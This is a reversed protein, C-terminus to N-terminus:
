CVPLCVCVCVDLDGNSIDPSMFAPRSASADALTRTTVFQLCYRAHTHMNYIMGSEQQVDPVIAPSIPTSELGGLTHANHHSHHIICVLLNCSCKGNNSWSTPRPINSRGREYPQSACRITGLYNPIAVVKPTGDYATSVPNWRTVMGYKTAENKSLLVASRGMGKPHALAYDPHWHVASFRLRPPADEPLGLCRRQALALQRKKARRFKDRNGRAQHIYVYPIHRVM